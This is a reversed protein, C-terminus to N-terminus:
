QNTYVYYEAAAILVTVTAGALCEAAIKWRRTRMERETLLLPIGVVLPLPFSQRLLKESYFSTDKRSLLFAVALGLFLGAAIGGGAIRLRKPSFAKVPLTPADIMRFQQGEQRQELSTTMQSKLQNNTLDAYEKSYVDYDRLIEKLQQDRVPTLNLRQEYRAIEAKVRTEDKAYGEMDAQYTDMQARLQSANLEEPSPMASRDVAIVGTKLREILAQTRAVEQDKALVEPHRATFRNLLGTRDTQLRTM